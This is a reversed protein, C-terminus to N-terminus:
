KNNRTSKLKKEEKHNINQNINQNRTQKSKRTLYPICTSICTVSTAVVTNINLKGRSADVILDIINSISGDDLLKLLVLEDEGETLDQFLNRLVKLAFEKQEIGKIPTEEVLEMVYKIVLHITNPRISIDKVRSKLITTVNSFLSTERSIENEKNIVWEKAIEFTNNEKTLINNYKSQTKGKIM